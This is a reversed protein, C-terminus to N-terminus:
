AVVFAVVIERFSTNELSGPMSYVPTSGTLFIVSLGCLIPSKETKMTANQHYKSARNDLSPPRVDFGHLWLHLWLFSGIM